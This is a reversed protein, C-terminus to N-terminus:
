KGNNESLLNEKKAQEIMAAFRNASAIQPDEVIGKAILEKLKHKDMLKNAACKLLADERLNKNNAIANYEDHFRKEVREFKEESMQKCDWINVVHQAIYATIPDEFSPNPYARVMVSFLQWQATAERSSNAKNLANLLKLPVTVDPFEDSFRAEDIADIIQKDDYNVCRKLFGDLSFSDLKKSKAEYYANLAASVLKVNKM